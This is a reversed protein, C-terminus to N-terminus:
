NAIILIYIKGFILKFIKCKEEALLENTIFNYGRYCRRYAKCISLWFEMNCCRSAM